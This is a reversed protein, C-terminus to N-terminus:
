RIVKSRKVWKEVEVAGFVIASAGFCILLENVSLPETRFVENAPPFYIVAMQLLTTLIVNIFLNSNSFIGQQFLSERDSRIAMVHGLQSLSLVTFVMTQWHMQNEIAYAQIALTVGAM